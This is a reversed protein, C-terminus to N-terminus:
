WGVDGKNWTLQGDWEQSVAIEINVKFDLTLTM